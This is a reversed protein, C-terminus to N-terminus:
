RLRDRRTRRHPRHYGGRPVRRAARPVQQVPRLARGAQPNMCSLTLELPVGLEAGLRIVDSKDMTSLRRPSRSRTPSASRCRGRWRQSSSRRRMPFRTAPSRASRWATARAARLLHGGQEPSHRQPRDPLRGRGAHRFGAARRAAGLAHAPLSRAVTFTLARGARADASPPRRSCATSRRGAGRAEWALGTSVYIPHVHSTRAESAALVASDLGPSFSPQRQAPAM